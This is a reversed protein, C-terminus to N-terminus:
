HYGYAHCNPVTQAYHEVNINQWDAPCVCSIVYMWINSMHILLALPEYQRTSSSPLLPPPPPPSRLIGCDHGLVVAHTCFISRRIFDSGPHYQFGVSQITHHLPLLRTRARLGTSCASRCCPTWSLSHPARGGAQYTLSLDWCVTM